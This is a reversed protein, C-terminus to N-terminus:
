VLGLSVVHEQEKETELYEYYKKYYRKFERLDFVWKM